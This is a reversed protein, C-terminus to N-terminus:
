QATFDLVMFEGLSTIPTHNWKIWGNNKVKVHLKKVSSKGRKRNTKRLQKDQCGSMEATGTYDAIGEPFTGVFTEASDAKRFIFCISFNVCSTCAKLDCQM